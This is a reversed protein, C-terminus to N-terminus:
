FKFNVILFYGRAQQSPMLVPQTYNLLNNIGTQINLHSGFEKNVILNVLAFGPVMEGDSDLIENGDVYGNWGQFGYSGRYKVTLSAGAKHRLNRYQLGLNATHKSRNYLGKYDSLEVLSSRGTAPNRRYLKGNRIDRLVQKDKAILFNYGSNFYFSKSLRYMFNVEAGETYIRDLNMYSFISKTNIQNFPLTYTEIQHNIDNRFINVKVVGKTNITYDTGINFGVSREPELTVGNLYPQINVSKSLLGSEQLRQLGNGLERAGLITYGVLSNSYDLYQQRFDPAKFGAGVSAKIILDPTVKYGVALKPSLQAAYLTNKDFRAGAIINVKSFTIQKQVYGFWSNLDRDSSYRNSHVSELNYGGGAVWQNNDQGFNLQIEPKLLYQNLTIKEYLSDNTKLYAHSNNNFGTAYISAIYNFRSNVQQDWKAYLSKDIEITTGNIVEPVQEPVIQYNNFQKQNFYRGSLTLTRKDDFRTVTKANISFDRYPDITKGYINKDYDWGDTQYRRTLLELSTKGLKLDGSVTGTRENNSGYRLKARLANAAPTQTIINIVGALADSGYLSTAPGRVIEIQKINGLEVRNLDLVGANRGTLPEGDIMILTYAPDLGQMQVGTGFPNPYGQLAVGLPNVAVVLGTYMQLVDMLNELGSQSITKASIVQIPMPLNKVNNETRTGSIVVESLVRAASDAIDQSQATGGVLLFLIISLFKQGM